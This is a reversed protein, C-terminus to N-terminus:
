LVKRLFEVISNKERRLVAPDARVPRRTIDDLGIRSFLRARKTKSILWAYNGFAIAPVCAHVRESITLPVHRYLHLYGEPVDSIYCNPRRFPWYGLMYSKFVKRYLPPHAAHDTRVIRFKDYSAMRSAARTRRIRRHNNVPSWVGDKLLRVLDTGYEELVNYDLAKDFNM